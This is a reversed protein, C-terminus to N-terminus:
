GEPQALALRETKPPLVDVELATPQDHRVSKLADVALELQDLELGLAAPAGLRRRYLVYFVFGAALWALGAYRTPADQV